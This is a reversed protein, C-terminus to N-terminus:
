QCDLLPQGNQARDANKSACDLEDNQHTFTYIVVVCAVAILIGLAIARTLTWFGVPEANNAAPARHDTWQSGDWYRQTGAMEPDPYWGPTTSMYRM